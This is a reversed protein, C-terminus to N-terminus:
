YPELGFSKHREQMHDYCEDASDFYESCFWCIHARCQKCYVHNCGRSKEIPTSCQPCRKRNRRDGQLWLELDRDVFECAIGEHYPEHCTTCIIVGCQGCFFSKGTKTVSYIMSCDPTPCNCVKDQNAAVYARVSANVMRRINFGTVESLTYFDRWVMAESCGDAACQIPFEVTSPAVQTKICDICYTHGCSELRFIDPPHTIVTFCVCCEVENSKHTHLSLVNPDVSKSFSDIVHVVFEHVEQSAFMTM